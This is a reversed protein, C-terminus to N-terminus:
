GATLPHPRIGIVQRRGTKPDFYEHFTRGNLNREIYPMGERANGTRNVKIRSLAQLSSALDQGDVPAAAGGTSGADPTVSQAQADQATPVPELGGGTAQKARALAEQLLDETSGLGGQQQLPTLAHTKAWTQYGAILEALDKGTGAVGAM